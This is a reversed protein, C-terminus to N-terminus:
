RMMGMRVLLPVTATDIPGVILQPVIGFLVLIGVLFVLAVPRRSWRVSKTM